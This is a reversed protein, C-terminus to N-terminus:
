GAFLVPCPLGVAPNHIPWRVCASEVLWGDGVAYLLRTSRSAGSQYVFLQLVRIASGAFLIPWPLGVALNNSLRALAGQVSLAFVCLALVIPPLRPPGM